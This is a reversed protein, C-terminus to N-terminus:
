MIIVRYLLFSLRVGGGGWIGMEFNPAAIKGPASQWWDDVM